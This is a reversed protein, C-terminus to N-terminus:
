CIYSGTSPNDSLRTSLRDQRKNEPSSAKKEQAMSDHLLSERGAPHKSSTFNMHACMCVYWMGVFLCILQM